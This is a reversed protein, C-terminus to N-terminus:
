FFLRFGFIALILVLIPQHILYIALSNRGLFAFFNAFLGDMKFKATKEVVKRGFFIGLLLIGLWPFLPFYDFTFLNQPFLWFLNSFGFNQFQLYFGFLVVSLGLILNLRKCRVFFPIFFSTAAFFHLIGFIITGQPVFIYTFLTVLLAFILLKSGRAFYKKGFNEKSNRCAAYAAAGSIFIFIGAILRPFAIWYLFNYSFNLIHFYTFTVSYNFLIMLIVTFGRMFDISFIRRM